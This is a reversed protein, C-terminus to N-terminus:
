TLFRSENMICPEAYAFMTTALFVGWKELSVSYLWEYAVVLHSLFFSNYWLLDSTKTSTEVVSKM